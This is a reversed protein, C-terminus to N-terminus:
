STFQCSKTSKDACRMRYLSMRRNRKRNYRLPIQRHHSMDNQFETHQSSHTHQTRQLLKHTYVPHPENVSESGCRNKNITTSFSIYVSAHTQLIDRKLMRADRDFDAATSTM